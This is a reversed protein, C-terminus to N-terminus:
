TDLSDTLAISVAYAVHFVVALVLMRMINKTFSKVSGNLSVVSLGFLPCSWLVLLLLAVMIVIFGTSDKGFMQTVKKAM